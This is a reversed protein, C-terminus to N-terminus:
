QIINWVDESELGLKWMSYGALDYKKVLELRRKISQQNEVWIKYTKGEETHEVYDLLTNNDFVVNTEWSRIREQTYDMGYARTELGDETEAWHRIYTPMGLVLKENPVEKLNEIIKEETWIISSVPGAEESGSWYQDYAMEMFYDVSEAIKNRCYQKTWESPVYIDVSVVLGERNAQPYLERIFQVWEQSFSEQVNEIDINIGDFQMTKSINIIQNIVYARKQTSSLIEETFEPNSFSQSLVPWVEVNKQHALNIYEQSAKSILDGKTSSFEFWTPSIVNLKHLYKYKFDRLDVESTGEIQDWAMRIQEDLRLNNLPELIKGNEEQAYVKISNKKIYGIIGEESKIRIYNNELNEDEYITVVSGKKLLNLIVGKKNPLTRILSSSKLIGKKISTDTDITLINYKDKLKITDGLIENIFELSLYINNDILKLPLDVQQIEGNLLYTNNQLDIRIIDQLSTVTLIKEKEDFYFRDNISKSVFEQNLLIDNGERVVIDNNKVRKDNLSINIQGQSYEDFYTIPNVKILNPMYQYMLICFCITAICVMYRNLKKKRKMKKNM